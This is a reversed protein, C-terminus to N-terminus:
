PAPRAGLAKDVTEIAAEVLATRPVDDRFLFALTPLARSMSMAVAWHDANVYGLLSGGPVIQDYWILQGDNRPEIRALEQYTEMLIPSLRDPRPTTVLAFVPKSIDARHGQWWALRTQRRLDLMEDGDAQRCEARPLSALWARFATNLRDALLSGNMAGAVSVIAGISSAAEPYRVVLELVDPLGRAYAFVILPRPDRPLAGLERALQAANQESSGRGRVSLYYVEFGARTLHDMTEVFPRAIGDLCEALLGPVFAVRYRQAAGPQPASPPSSIEGALELLLQDCPPAAAPLRRCLATRYMGRLDRVGAGGATTLVVPTRNSYSPVTPAACGTLALAGVALRLLGRATPPRRDERFRQKSSEEARGVTM